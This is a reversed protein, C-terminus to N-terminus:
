RLSHEHECHNSVVFTMRFRPRPSTIGTRTFSRHMEILLFGVVNVDQGVTRFGQVRSHGAIQLLPHSLVFLMYKGPEGGVVFNVPQNIELSIGANVARNRALLLDLPVRPEFLYRQNHRLIRRPFVQAGLPIGPM